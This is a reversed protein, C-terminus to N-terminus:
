DLLTSLWSAELSLLYAEKFIEVLRASVNIRLVVLVQLHSMLSSNSVIEYMWM